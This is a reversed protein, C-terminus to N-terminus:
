IQGKMKLIDIIKKSINGFDVIIYSKYENKGFEECLYSGKDKNKWEKLNEYLKRKLM